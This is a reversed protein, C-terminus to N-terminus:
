KNETFTVDAPMGPKLQNAQNEVLLHVAFVTSRRSEATQVNRPTFEAKDAIRKVVATFTEGSFSDVEVVAAQGLAVRGYLDEPVYVTIELNSLDAILLLTAGPLVVEGPQVSRSLVVGDLPATLTMRGLQVDLVGLAAEAAEVQAAAAASQAEAAAAQQGAAQVQAASSRLQAEAAEVQESRAGAKILDYQARANELTAQAQGLQQKLAKGQSTEQAAESLDDYSEQYADVALQAKEVVTEAVALQEASAGAQLLDLNAQAAAQVAQVAEVGAQAAQAAAAAAQQNARATKLGAEAQLRQAQLLSDDLEVLVDGAKVSEGEVVSVSLVRGSAEAAIRVETAEITGSASLAGNAAQNAQDQRYWFFAAILGLVLVVPVIRRPDPHM